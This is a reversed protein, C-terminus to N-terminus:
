TWDRFKFCHFRHVLKLPTCTNISFNPTQGWVTGAWVGNGNLSQLKLNLTELYPWLSINRGAEWKQGSHFWFKKRDSSLLNTHSHTHASPLARHWLKVPAWISVPMALGGEIESYSPQFTVIAEECLDYTRLAWLSGVDTLMSKDLVPTTTNVIQINVFFTILSLHTWRIITNM